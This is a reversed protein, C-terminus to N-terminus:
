KGMAKKVAHLGMAFLAGIAVKVTEVDVLAVQSLDGEKVGFDVGTVAGLLTFVTVTVLVFARKQWVALGDVWLLYSKLAQVTLAALPGVILAFGYEVLKLKAWEM